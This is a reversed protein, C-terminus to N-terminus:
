SDWTSSCPCTKCRIAPCRSSIRTSVPLWRASAIRGGSSTQMSRRRLYWPLGRRALQDALREYRDGLYLHVEPKLDEQSIRGVLLLMLRVSLLDYRLRWVSPTEIRATTEM